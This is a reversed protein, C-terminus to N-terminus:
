ASAAAGGAACPAEELLRNVTAVLVGITFPKRLFADYGAALSKAKDDLAAMASTGILQTRRASGVRRLVPTLLRPLELGSGDPLLQDCIIVDFPEDSVFAEQVAKQADALTGVARCRVGLWNKMAIQLVRATDPHDEVVLISCDSLASAGVAEYEENKAMPGCRLLDARRRWSTTPCNARGNCGQAHPTLLRDSRSEESAGTNPGCFSVNGIALTVEVGSKRAPSASGTMTDRM